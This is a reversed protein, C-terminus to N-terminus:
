ERGRRAVGESVFWGAAAASGGGGDPSSVGHGGREGM